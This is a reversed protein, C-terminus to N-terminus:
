FSLKEICEEIQVMVAKAEIKARKVADDVSIMVPRAKTGINVDSFRGLTKVFLPKISEPRYSVFYVTECKPNVTFYHILQAIHDLPIEDALCTEIHKKAGPCKIECHITECETIGDPSIGLIEIEECQMWGCEKFKLGTYLELEQRAEPELENGRDMAASSFSDTLQFQETREALLNLMLTDSKIFLGASTSGGIKGWKIEFWDQTQQILDYHVKM